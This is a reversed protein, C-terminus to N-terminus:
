GAVVQVYMKHMIRWRGEELVLALHDIYIKGLMPCKVKATAIPGDREVSLVAFGFSEGLQKPSARKAVVPLYEELRRVWVKGEIKTASADAVFGSLVAAPHFVRTLLGVDGTYLGEFYGQLTANLEADGEAHIRANNM